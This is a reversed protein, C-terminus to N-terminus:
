PKGNVGNFKPETLPIVTREKEGTKKEPTKTQAVAKNTNLLTAFVLCLALQVTVFKTKYKM